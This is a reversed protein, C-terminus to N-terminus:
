YLGATEDDAKQVDRHSRERSASVYIFKRTVAALESDKSTISDIRHMTDEVERCLEELVCVPLKSEANARLHVYNDTEGM